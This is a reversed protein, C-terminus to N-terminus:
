LKVVIIVIIGYRDNHRDIMGGRRKDNVVCKNTPILMFFLLCIENVEFVCMLIIYTQFFVSIWLTHLLM